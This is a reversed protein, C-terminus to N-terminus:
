REGDATPCRCACRRQQVTRQMAHNSSTPKTLLKSCGMHRLERSPRAEKGL